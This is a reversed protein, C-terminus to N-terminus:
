ITKGVYFFNGKILYKKLHGINYDSIQPKTIKLEKNLAPNGLALWTAGKPAM